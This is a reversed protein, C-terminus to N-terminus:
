RRVQVVVRRVACKSGVILAKSMGACSSRDVPWLTTGGMLVDFMDSERAFSMFAEVGGDSLSNLVSIEEFWM